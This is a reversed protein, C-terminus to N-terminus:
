ITLWSPNVNTEKDEVGLQYSTRTWDTSDEHQAVETNPKARGQKLLGVPIRLGPVRVAPVGPIMGM